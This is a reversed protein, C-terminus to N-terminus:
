VDLVEVRLARPLLDIKLERIGDEPTCFFEGDLHVLLPTESSLRVRRCRGQRVRPDNEPPGYLAVRPLFKLV